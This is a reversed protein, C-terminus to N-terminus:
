ETEKYSQFAEEYDLWKEYWSLCAKTYAKAAEAAKERIEVSSLTHDPHDEPVIQPVIGLWCAESYRYTKWQAEAEECALRATEMQKAALQLQWDTYSQETNLRSSQLRTKKPVRRLGDLLLTNEAEVAGAITLDGDQKKQLHELYREYGFPYYIVRDDEFILLANAVEKIFYRDHSIFLMTGAYMQFASELTERAPIDMHNTPEDLILFNPRAAMIKALILRSKEGGSLDTIKRATDEGQFLYNDLYSKVEKITWGPYAEHFYEFVRKELQIEGSHQDFYGAEIQNGMQFSGSLPALQGTITKLFTTKGTGNAGIVGIKQGRRVALTIEKIPKEYGIRLKEAELVRKSGFVAPEIKDAFIHSSEKEPRDIKEMRELMKKKSRAMAAKKPKHKFKEILETLRAMEKQQAQYRKMQLKRNKERQKKYASYNGAYRVLRGGTLEYVVGATRDLFFRDHSVMVVANEYDRLYEELWSVSELDLHNTPEDLLLIDPKLLLLKILAIKTQEGGSFAPLKKQKEKKSFGFGTFIRDYEQEFGFRERAFPDKVTCLSLIEEEVTHNKGSLLNQHLMGVTTNRARWIGPGNRKDDRDLSLEGAILRLLTTKGAGNRGVLAIKEKGRIEFDIHSLITEGGLSVTGDMIQYRM